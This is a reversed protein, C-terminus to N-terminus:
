SVTKKANVDLGKEDVLWRAVSLHGSSCAAM